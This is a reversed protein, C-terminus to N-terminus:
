RAGRGDPGGVQASALDVSAAKADFASALVAALEGLSFPKSIFIGNSQKILRDMRESRPLGSVLLIHAKCGADLIRRLTEEASPGPMRVDLILVDYHEKRTELTTLVEYFSTAETIDWGEKSFVRSILKLVYDEDDAVLM